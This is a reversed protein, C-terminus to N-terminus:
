VVGLKLVIKQVVLKKLYKLNENFLNMLSAHEGRNLLEGVMIELIVFRMESSSPGDLGLEITGIGGTELTVPVVGNSLIALLSKLQDIVSVNSFSKM